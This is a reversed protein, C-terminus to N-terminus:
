DYEAPRLGSSYAIPVQQLIYTKTMISLIHFLIHFRIWIHPYIYTMRYVQAIAMSALWFYVGRMDIASDNYEVIPVYLMGTAFYVVFSYKAYVLDLNRRWGHIPYYWYLVSCLYTGSSTMAHFWLGRDCAVYIPIVVLSSTVLLTRSHWSEIQFSSGLRFSLRPPDRLMNQQDYVPHIHFQQSEPGIM